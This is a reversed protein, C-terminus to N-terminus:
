LSNVRNTLPVSFFYRFASAKAFVKDTQQNRHDLVYQVDEIASENLEILKPFARAPANTSSAFCFACACTNLFARRSSQSESADDASRQAVVLNRSFSANRQKKGRRSMSIRIASESRPLAHTSSVYAHYM